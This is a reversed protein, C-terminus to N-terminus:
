VGVLVNIGVACFFSVESGVPVPVPVPVSNSDSLKDSSGVSTDSSVLATLVCSHALFSLCAFSHPDVAMFALDFHQGPRTQLPLFHKLFLLSPFTGIRPIINVSLGLSDGESLGIFLGVRDGVSLGVSIVLVGVLLGVNEGVYLGVLFGVNFGVIDGVWFGVRDGVYM